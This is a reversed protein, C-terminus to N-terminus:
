TFDLTVTCKHTNIRKTAAQSLEQRKKREKLKKGKPSNKRMTHLMDREIDVSHKAIYEIVSNEMAWKFFNLQGVTTTVEKGPKYEYTIRERRCFPDFQKKSYSKLQSKYNLYVIFQRKNTEKLSDKSDIISNDKCSIEYMINYKKSYNTVFWDIVRLSIKSDPSIIKLFDDLLNNRESYFNSLYEMLVDQKRSVILPM